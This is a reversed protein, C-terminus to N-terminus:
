RSPDTKNKPPEVENSAIGAAEDIERILTDVLAKAYAKTDIPERRVSRVVIRREKRPRPSKPHSTATM